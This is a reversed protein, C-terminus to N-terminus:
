ASRRSELASRVEETYDEFITYKGGMNEIVSDGVSELAAGNIDDIFVELLKGSDAAIPQLQSASVGLAILELARYEAASLSAVFGDFGEPREAQETTKSSVCPKDTGPRGAEPQSEEVDTEVLLKELNEDMAQRIGDLRAVDVNVKAVNARRSRGNLYDVVSKDIVNDFEPLLIADRFASHSVYPLMDRVLHITLGPHLRNKYKCAIRLQAEVRKVVYGMFVPGNDGLFTSAKCRWGNGDYTYFDNKSLHVKVPKSPNVPKFCSGLFPAWEAAAAGRHTRVFMNALDLGASEFYRQLSEMAANLCARMLKENEPSNFKSKSFNYHGNDAFMDFWCDCIGAAIVISPFIRSLGLRHVLEAFPEDFQGTVYYDIIYRPVLSNAPTLNLQKIMGALRELTGVGEPAGFGCMIETAYLQEFLQMREPCAGARVKTRWTLYGRLQTQNLEAFTDVYHPIPYEGEYDDTEEYMAQLQRRFDEMKNYDYRLIYEKRIDKLQAWLIYPRSKLRSNLVGTANVEWPKSDGNTYAEYFKVCTDTVLQFFLEDQTFEYDSSMRMEHNFNEVNIAPGKIPVQSLEQLKREIFRALFDVLIRCNNNVFPRYEGWFVGNHAYEHLTDLKAVREPANVIAKTNYVVQSRFPEWDYCQRDILFLPKPDVAHMDMLVTLNTIVASFCAMFMELNDRTIFGDEFVNYLTFRLLESFPYRASNATIVSRSFFAELKYRRVIDIFPKKWAYLIYYDIFAASAICTQNRSPVTFCKVTFALKGLADEVGSVGINNALENIYIRMYLLNTPIYEGDRMHGRWTFYWRLQRENLEDYVGTYTGDAVVENREFKDRFDEMFKAQRYFSETEDFEIKDWYNIRRPGNDQAIMNRLKMIKSPTPSAVIDSLLHAGKNLFDMNRM